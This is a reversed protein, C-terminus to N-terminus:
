GGEDKIVIDRVRIDRIIHFLLNCDVRILEVAYGFYSYNIITFIKRKINLTLTNLSECRSCKHVDAPTGARFDVKKNTM